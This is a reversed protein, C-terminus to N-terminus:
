SFDFEKSNSTADVLIDIDWPNEFNNDNYIRDM